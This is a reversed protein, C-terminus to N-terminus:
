ILVKVPLQTIGVGELNNLFIWNEVQGPLLLNEIFYHMMYSLTAVMDEPTLKMKIVLKPQIQIIPRFRNDRGQCYFVGM